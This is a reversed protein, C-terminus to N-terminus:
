LCGLDACKHIKQSTTSSKGATLVVVRSQAEEPLDAICRELLPLVPDSESDTVFVWELRGAPDRSSIPNSNSVGDFAAKNLCLRMGRGLDGGRRLRVM